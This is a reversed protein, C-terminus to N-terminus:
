HDSTTDATFKVVILFVVNARSDVIMIPKDPTVLDARPIM